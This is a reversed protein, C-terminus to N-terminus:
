DRRNQDVQHAAFVAAQSRDQLGLKCLLNSVHVRVTSPSLFLREAIIRNSLGAGLLALVEQERRTLASQRKSAGQELDAGRRQQIGRVLKEAIDPPLFVGGKAVVRVGETFVQRSADKILYGVAGAQFARSVWENETFSTIALIRAGPNTKIIEATATIGDLVPMSLDMVIVDPQLLQAQEVAQLGNAATGVIDMDAESELVLCLAECVMPHDDVVLIRIKTVRDPVM